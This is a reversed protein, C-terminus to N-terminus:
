STPSCRMCSAPSPPTSSTSIPRLPVAPWAARIPIIEVLTARPIRKAAFRSDAPPPLLDHTGPMLLTRAEIRRLAEAYDGGKAIDHLDRARTQYVFDNADWLKATGATQENLWGIVQANDPIDKDMWDWHRVWTELSAAAARLGKERQETYAGGAWAADAMIAQRQSESIATVWPSTRGMSVIPILAAM